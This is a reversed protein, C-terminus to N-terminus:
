PFVFNNKLDLLLYKLFDILSLIVFFDFEKFFHKLVKLHIYINTCFLMFLLLYVRILYYSM